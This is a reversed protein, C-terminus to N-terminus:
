PTYSRITLTSSKITGAYSASSARSAASAGSTFDHCGLVITYHFRQASRHARKHIAQGHRRGLEADHDRIQTGLSKYARVRYIPGVTDADLKGELHSEGLVSDRALARGLEGVMRLLHCARAYGGHPARYMALARTRVDHVRVAVPVAAPAFVWLARQMPAVARVALM